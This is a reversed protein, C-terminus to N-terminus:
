IFLAELSCMYKGVTKPAAEASSFGAVLLVLLHISAM